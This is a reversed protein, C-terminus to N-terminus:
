LPREIGAHIPGQNRGTEARSQRSQGTQHMRGAPFRKICACSHRSPPRRVRAATWKGTQRGNCGQAHREGCTQTRLIACEQTCGEGRGETQWFANGQARGEAPQFSYGRTQGALCEKSQRGPHMFAYGEAQRTPCGCTCEEVSRCSHGPVPGEVSGKSHRCSYGTVSSEACKGTHRFACGQSARETCGECPRLYDVKSRGESCGEIRRGKSRARAERM